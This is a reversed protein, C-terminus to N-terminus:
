GHGRLHPRRARRRRGDVHHNRGDGNEVMPTRGFEGGWLVLTDELMGRQALDDLLAAIPRDVKACEEVTGEKVKKHHDWTYDTSVQIYRVGREAFKRALICQRGFNDTPESGVGYRALTQSSEDGLSMVAPLTSQM